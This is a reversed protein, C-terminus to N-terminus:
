KDNNSETWRYIEPHDANCGCCNFCKDDQELKRVNGKRICQDLMGRMAGPEVAFHLSLDSLSVVPQRKFFDRIESLIM